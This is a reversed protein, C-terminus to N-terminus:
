WSWSLDVVSVYEGKGRWRGERGEEKRVQHKKAEHKERVERLAARPQSRVRVGSRGSAQLVGPVRVASVAQVGHSLGLLRTPREDAEPHRGFLSCLWRYPVKGAAM